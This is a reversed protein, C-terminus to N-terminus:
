ASLVNNNSQAVSHGCEPGACLHALTPLNSRRGVLLFHVRM